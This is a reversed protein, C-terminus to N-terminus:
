GDDKSYDQETKGEIEVPQGGHVTRVLCWRTSSLTLFLHHLFTMLTQILGDLVSM